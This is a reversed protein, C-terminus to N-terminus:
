LPLCISGGKAGPGWAEAKAEHVVDDGEVSEAQKVLVAWVIARDM